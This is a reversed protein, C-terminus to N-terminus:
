LLALSLYFVETIPEQSDLILQKRYLKGRRAHSGEPSTTALRRMEAEHLGGCLLCLQSVGESGKQM